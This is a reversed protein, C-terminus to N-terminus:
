LWVTLPLPPVAGYVNATVEPENGGGSASLGEVPAIVPVGFVPPVKLKVIVAVSAFEHLPPVAYLTRIQGAIEM